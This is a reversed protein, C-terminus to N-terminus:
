KGDPNAWRKLLQKKRKLNNNRYKNYVSVGPEGNPGIGIGDVQGSGASVTPEELLNKFDQNIGVKKAVNIYENLDEQDITEVGKEQHEKIFWLAAAYTALRRDGGTVNSILKKIKLVLLDFKGFSLNETRRQAKSKIIEGKDNIIGNKYAEWETFPTALRKIFQYVMFLDVVSSM